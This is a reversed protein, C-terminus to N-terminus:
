IKSEDYNMKSEYIIYNESIVRGKMGTVFRNANHKKLYEKQENTYKM